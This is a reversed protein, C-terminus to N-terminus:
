NDFNKIVSKAQIIYILEILLVIGISGGTIGAVLFIGICTWLLVNIEKMSVGNVKKIIKGYKIFIFSVVSVFIINLILSGYSYNVIGILLLLSNVIINFWGLAVASAGANYIKKFRKDNKELNKIIIESNNSTKKKM